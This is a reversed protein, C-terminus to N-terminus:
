VVINNNNIKIRMQVRWFVRTRFFSRVSYHALSVPAPEPKDRGRFVQQVARVLVTAQRQAVEPLAGGPRAVDPVDQRVQHVLVRRRVRLGEDVHPPAAPPRGPGVAARRGAASQRGARVTAAAEDHRRGVSAAGRRGVDAPGVRPVPEGGVLEYRHNCKCCHCDHVTATYM